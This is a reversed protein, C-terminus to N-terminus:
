AAEEASEDAKSVKQERIWSDAIDLAKGAPLLDELDLSNSTRWDDEVKYLKGVAVSYRTGHRTENPWITVRVRGLKVEHAPTKKEM